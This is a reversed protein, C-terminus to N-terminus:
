EMFRYAKYIEGTHVSIWPWDDVRAQAFYNERFDNDLSRYFNEGVWIDNDGARTHLDRAIHVPPGLPVLTNDGRRGVSAIHVPGQDIGISCRLGKPLVRGIFRDAIHEVFNVIYLAAQLAAKAGGAAERSELGFLATLQDGSSVVTIGRFDAVIKLVTPVVTHLLIAANLNDEGTRTLDSFQVLDFCLVSTFYDKGEGVMLTQPVPTMGSEAMKATRQQAHRYNDMMDDRLTDFYDEKM